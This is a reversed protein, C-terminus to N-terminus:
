LTAATIFLEDLQADSLGLAPALAEVLASDREVTGASEWEIQAREPMGAVMEKVSQLMGISLLALRAQRMTVQHPVIPAPPIVPAVEVGTRLANARYKLWALREEATVEIHCDAHEPLLEQLYAGTLNGAGDYTVYNIM